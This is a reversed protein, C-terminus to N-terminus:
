GKSLLLDDIPTLRELLGNKLGRAAKLALTPSPTPTARANRIRSGVLRM